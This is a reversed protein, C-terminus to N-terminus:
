ITQIMSDMKKSIGVKTDVMTQYTAIDQRMQKDDKKLQVVELESDYVKRNLKFKQDGWNAMANRVKDNEKGANVLNSHM